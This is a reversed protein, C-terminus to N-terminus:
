GIPFERFGHRYQDMYISLRSTPPPQYNDFHPLEFTEPPLASSRTSLAFLPTSQILSASTTIKIANQKTAKSFLHLHHSPRGPHQWRAAETTEVCHQQTCCCLHDEMRRQPTCTNAKQPQGRKNVLNSQKISTSPWSGERFESFTNILSFRDGEM